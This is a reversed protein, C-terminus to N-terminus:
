YPNVTGRNDDRNLVTLILPFMGLTIFVLGEFPTGLQKSGGSLLPTEAEAEPSLFLGFDLFCDFGLALVGIGGRLFFFGEFFFLERLGGM